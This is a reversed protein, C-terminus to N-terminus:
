CSLDATVSSFFVQLFSLHSCHIGTPSYIFFFPVCLAFSLLVFCVCILLFFLGVKNLNLKKM